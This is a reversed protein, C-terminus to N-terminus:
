GYFRFPNVSTGRHPYGKWVGFHLHTGTAFGSKGMKGIQQGITVIEGTKVLIESLHAYITYYGNNHNIIIYNGNPYKYTAIDVVGDSAAYIPSGYGTGSIDIGEHFKGWRWAYNSTIVYPIKTPWAWSGLSGISITGKGRVIVKNITPEVEVSDVVVASVVEGNSKKIKKTVKNKGNVGEQKVREVGVLLTDDYVIETKYKSAEIEVVHDEEIVKFAPRIVGLTVTQGPYLLNDSSTFEPNAILFEEASLKNDYSLQEITDGSKVTYTKQAELTGFLLYKSLEESDSFIVDDVSIRNQKITMENEIYINEIIKGTDEIEEQANDVYAQYEEEPIFVKLTTMIADDFIKKDLVNIIVDDTTYKQDEEIEEVGKITITYGNITFPSIDKIKQYIEEVTSVKENYTVEKVIDLDKPAYVKDVEYKKKIESEKLNIYEELEEKSNIYGITKGSLYVRYLEEPNKYKTYGTFFVTSSIFLALVIFIITKKNM